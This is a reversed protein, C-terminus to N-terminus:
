LQAPVVYQRVVAGYGVVLRVRHRQERASPSEGENIVYLVTLRDSQSLTPTLSLSFDGNFDAPLKLAFSQRTNVPFIYRKIKVTPTFLTITVSNGAGLSNFRM